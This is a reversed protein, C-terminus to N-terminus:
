KHKVPFFAIRAIPVLPAAVPGLAGRGSFAAGGPPPKDNRRLRMDVVVQTRGRLSHGFYRSSRRRLSGVCNSLWRRRVGALRSIQGFRDLRQQVQRLLVAVDGVVVDVVNEWLAERRLIQVIEIGLEAVEVHLNHVMSLDLSGFRSFRFLFLVAPEFDKIIGDPHVHVLHALDGKEGALLFDLDALANFLRLQVHFPQDIPQPEGGFLVDGDRFLEQGLRGLLTEVPNDHVLLNGVAFRM